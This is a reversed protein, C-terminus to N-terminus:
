LTGEQPVLAEMKVTERFESWRRAYPSADGGIPKENGEEDEFWYSCPTGVIQEPFEPFLRCAEPRKDYIACHSNKHQPCPVYAEALIELGVGMPTVAPKFGRTLLFERDRDSPAKIFLRSRNVSFICCWGCHNCDGKRTWKAM